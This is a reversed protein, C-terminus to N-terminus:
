SAESEEGGERLHEELKEGACHEWHRAARAFAEDRAAFGDHRLLLDCGDDCPYLEFRVTTGRWAALDPSCETCRWQVIATPILMEVVFFAEEGPAFQFRARSGVKALAECRTAFWRGLRDPDTLAAFVREPETPYRYRRVIEPM